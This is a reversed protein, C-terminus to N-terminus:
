EYVHVTSCSFYARQFDLPSPVLTQLWILNLSRNSTVSKPTTTVYWPPIQKKSSWFRSCKVTDRTRFCRDSSDTGYKLLYNVEVNWTHRGNHPGFCSSALNVITYWERIMQQPTTTFRPWKSHPSFCLNIYTYTLGLLRPFYKSLSPQRWTLWKYIIVSLSLNYNVGTLQIQQRPWICSEWPQVHLQIPLTM